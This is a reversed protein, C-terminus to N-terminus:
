TVSLDLRTVSSVFSRDILRRVKDIVEKGNKDFYHSKFKRSMLVRCLPFFLEM